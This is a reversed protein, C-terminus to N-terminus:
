NYTRAMHPAFADLGATVARCTMVVERALWVLALGAASAWVALSAGGYAQPCVTALVLLAATCAAVWVACMSMATSPTAKRLLALAGASSCFFPSCAWLAVDFAGADLRSATVAVMLAVALASSCGLAILRAVLVSAANNPCAYELEAVRHRKSAHVSPVGVLVAVSSLMGVALKTAGSDGAAAAVVGMLIVLAVQAAWTRAPIYRVQVAVFVVHGMGARTAKSRLSRGPVTEDSVERLLTASSQTMASTRADEAVMATALAEVAEAAVDESQAAYHRSLAAKLRARDVGSM